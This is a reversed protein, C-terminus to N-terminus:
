GTSRRRRSTTRGADVALRERTVTGGGDNGDVIAKNNKPNIWMDHHDSHSQVANGSFTKGGDTSKFAGVNLGYVTDVDVPDAFIHTYYWARQQLNRGTYTRTWRRAATM